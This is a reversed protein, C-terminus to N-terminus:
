NFALRLTLSHGDFRYLLTIDERFNDVAHQCQGLTVIPCSLLSAALDTPHRKKWSGAIMNCLEGATDACLDPSIECPSMGMLNSTLETATREDLQLCCRGELTGSFLVSANFCPYPEAGSAKPVIFIHRLHPVALKPDPDPEALESTCALNLMVAFVETVAEDLQRILDRHM